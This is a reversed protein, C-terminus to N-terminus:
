TNKRLSIARKTFTSVGPIVEGAELMERVATTALRRQTLYNAKNNNIYEWIAEWDDAKPIVTETLVASAAKGRSMTTEDDDLRNIVQSEMSEIQEGLKKAEATLAKQQERLEYMRDIIAGLKQPQKEEVEIGDATDDTELATAAESM